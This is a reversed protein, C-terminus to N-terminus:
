ILRARIQVRKCKVFMLVSSVSSACPGTFAFVRAFQLHVKLTQRETTVDATWTYNTTQLSYAFMQLGKFSMLGIIWWIVDAPAANLTNKVGTFHNLTACVCMLARTNRYISTLQYIFTLEECRLTERHIQDRDLLLLDDLGKFGVPLRVSKVSFGLDWM